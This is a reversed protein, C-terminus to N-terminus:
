SAVGEFRLQTQTGQGSGDVPYGVAVRLLARAYDTYPMELEGCRQAVEAALPEDAHMKLRHVPGNRVVGDGHEMASEAYDRLEEGSVDMYGDLDPLYPSVFGHATALVADCYRSLSLGLAASREQLETLLSLEVRPGYAHRNRDLPPRGPPNSTHRRRPMAWGYPRTGHFGSMHPAAPTDTNSWHGYAEKGSAKESGRVQTPAIQARM